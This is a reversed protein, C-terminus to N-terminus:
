MDLLPHESGYEVLTVDSLEGLVWEMVPLTALVVFASALAILTAGCFGAAGAETASAGTQIADAVAVVGLLLGSAVGAPLVRERTSRRLMVM